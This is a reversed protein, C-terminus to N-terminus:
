HAEVVLGGIFHFDFQTGETPLKYIWELHDDFDQQEDPAGYTDRVRQMDWLLHARRVDDPEGCNKLAQFFDRVAMGPPIRLELTATPTRDLALLERQTTEFRDLRALIEELAASNQPAIPERVSSVPLPLPSDAAPAPSAPRELRGLRLELTLTEVLERLERMEVTLDTPPPAEAAAHVPTMTREISVGVAVGFAVLLGGAVFLLLGRSSRDNM